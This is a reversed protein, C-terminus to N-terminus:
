SRSRGITIRWCLRVAGFLQSLSVKWFPPDCVILGYTEDRWNPRYLDYTEYGELAAFRADIDLIRCPKERRALEAGLLPACLACVNEFTHAADAVRAITADDWLYQEIEHREDFKM